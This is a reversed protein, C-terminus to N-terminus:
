LGGLYEDLLAGVNRAVVAAAAGVAETERQHYFDLFVPVAFSSSLAGDTANAPAVTAVVEVTWRYRGNMQSFYTAHTEVLLVLNSGGVADGLMELRHTTNRKAEFSEAWRDAGVVTPPLGRLELEGVLAEILGDPAAEVTRRDLYGMVPAVVTPLPTTAKVVDQRALCGLVLWLM